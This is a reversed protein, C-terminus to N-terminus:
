AGTRRVQREIIQIHARLHKLHGALAKRVPASDADAIGALDRHATDWAELVEAVSSTQGSGVIPFKRMLGVNALGLPSWRPREPALHGLHGQEAFLLHRVHELVSWTGNPPRQALKAEDRGRLVDRLRAQETELTAM